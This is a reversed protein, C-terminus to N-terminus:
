GRAWTRRAGSMGWSDMQVLSTGKIWWNHWGHPASILPLECVVKERKATTRPASCKLTEEPYNLEGMLDKQPISVGQARIGEELPLRRRGSLLPSTAATTPLPEATAIPSGSCSQEKFLSQSCKKHIFDEQKHRGNKVLVLSKM